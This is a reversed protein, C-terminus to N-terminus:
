SEKRITIQLMHSHANDSYRYIDEVAGRLSHALWGDMGGWKDVQEKTCSSFRCNLSTITLLTKCRYRWFKRLATMTEPTIYGTFDLWAADVTPCHEDSIFAEASTFYYAHIKKTRICHPSVQTILGNTKRPIWNMAGYYIAPDREIAYISTRATKGLRERQHKLAKEFAWYLGPMTLICLSGPWRDVTYLDLVRQRAKDKEFPNDKRAFLVGGTQRSHNICDRWQVEDALESMSKRLREPVYRSPPALAQHLVTSM